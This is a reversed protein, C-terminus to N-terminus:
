RAGGMMKLLGGNPMELGGGEDTQTQVTALIVVDGVEAGSVIQTYNDDRLGIEVEIRQAAGDVGQLDLYYRGASRDVIMARNSVLLVDSQANNVIDVDTTMGQKVSLEGSDFVIEVRYAVGGSTQTAAPAIEAVSGDLEEGPFAKLGLRVPQGVAIKGIDIEDLMVEIIADDTDALVIAPAGPSAWEGAAALVELLTGDFPAM